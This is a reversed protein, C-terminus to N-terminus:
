TRWEPYTFPARRREEARWRDWDSQALRREGTEYPPAPPHPGAAAGTATMDAAARPSLVEGPGLVQVACPLEGDSAPVRSGGAGCTADDSASPRTTARSGSPLAAAAAPGGVSPAAEGAIPNAHEGFAGPEPQSSSMGIAPRQAEHPQPPRGLLTPEEPATGPESREGVAPREDRAGGSGERKQTAM